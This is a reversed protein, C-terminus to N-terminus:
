LFWRPLYKGSSSNVFYQLYTPTPDGVKRLFKTIMNSFHISIPDRIARQSATQMKTLAYIQYLAKMTIDPQNDHFTILLPNPWGLKEADWRGTPTTIMIFDKSSLPLTTGATLGIESAFYRPNFVRPVETTRISIPIVNISFEKARDQLSQLEINNLYGDKHM